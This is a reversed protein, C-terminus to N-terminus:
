RRPRDQFATTRNAPSHCVSDLVIARPIDWGDYNGIRFCRKRRDTGAAVPDSDCRPIPDPGSDVPLVLKDSVTEGESAPYFDGHPNGPIRGRYSVDDRLNSSLLACRTYIGLIKRDLFSLDLGRCVVDWDPFAHYKHSRHGPTRNEGVQYSAFRSTANGDLRPWWVRSVLNGLALAAPM